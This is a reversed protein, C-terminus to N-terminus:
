VFVLSAIVPFFSQPLRASSSIARLVSFLKWCSYMGSALASFPLKPLWTALPNPCIPAIAAVAVTVPPLAIIGLTEAKASVYSLSDCSANFFPALSDVAFLTANPLAKAEIPNSAIGTNLISLLALLVVPPVVKLCIANSSPM